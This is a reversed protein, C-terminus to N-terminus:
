SLTPAPCRVAFLYNNGASCEPMPRVVARSRRERFTGDYGQEVPIRTAKVLGSVLSAQASITIWDIDRNLGIDGLCGCLVAAAIPPM